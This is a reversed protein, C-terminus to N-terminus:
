VAVATQETLGLRIQRAELFPVLASAPIMWHGHQDKTAGKLRGDALLVRIRPSGVELARAAGRVSFTKETPL